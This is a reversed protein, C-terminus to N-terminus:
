VVEGDNDDKVTSALITRCIILSVILVFCREPGQIAGQSGTSSEYQTKCLDLLLYFSDLAM